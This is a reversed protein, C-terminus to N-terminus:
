SALKICVVLTALGLGFLYYSVRTQWENHAPWTHNHAITLRTSGAHEVGNIIHELQYQLALHAHHGHATLLRHVHHGHIIHCFHHGVQRQCRSCLIAGEVQCSRVAHQGGHFIQYLRHSCPGLLLQLNVHGLRDIQRHWEQAVDTAAVVLTLVLLLAGDQRIQRRQHRIEEVVMDEITGVGIQITSFIREVPTLKHGSHQIESTTMIKHSEGILGDELLCYGTTGALM